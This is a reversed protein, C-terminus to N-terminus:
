HSLRRIRKSHESIGDDNNNNKHSSSSNSSEEKKKTKKTEGEQDRKLLEMLSQGFNLALLADSFAHQVQTIRFCNRGVNNGHFLPDEILLPDYHFPVRRSVFSMHHHHAHHRWTTATTNTTTRTTNHLRSKMHQHHHQQQQQKRHKQPQQQPKTWSQTRKLRITKKSKEASNSSSSSSGSLSLKSPKYKDKGGDKDGGGDDGDFSLCRTLPSMPVFANSRTTMMIYPQPLWQATHYGYPMMDPSTTATSTAVTQIGESNVSGSTFAHMKDLMSLRSFYCRRTVSIGTTRPDFDMGFFRLFRLLLDGLDEHGVTKWSAPEQEQLFRALMLVLGYSCLGGTHSTQLGRRLLLQKLVLLLPRLSRHESCLSLVMGSSAVGNHRDAQLSLDLKVCSNNALPKTVVRIIAVAQGMPKGYTEVKEVWKCQELRQALMQQWTARVANHEDLPGRQSDRPLNIVVDIDSSPLSLNSVYSGYLLVLARPWLMRVVTKVRHLAEAKANKRHLCKTDTTHQFAVIQQHLKSYKKKNNHNSTTITSINIRSESQLLELATRAKHNTKVSDEIIEKKKRRTVVTLKDRLDNTLDELEKIRNKLVSSEKHKIQDVNQLRKAVRDAITDLQVDSIKMIFPSSSSLTTTKTTPSSIIIEEEQEFKLAAARTVAVMADNALRLSDLSAQYSVYAADRSSVRQRERLRRKRRASRSEKKADTTEKKEEKEDEELLRKLMINELNEILNCRMKAMKMENGLPTFTDRDLRLGFIINNNNKKLMEEQDSQKLQSWCLELRGLPNVKVSSTASSCLLEFYHALFSGIQVYGSTVFWSTSLLFGGDSICKLVSEAIHNELSAELVISFKKYSEPFLRTRCTLYREARRRLEIKSLQVIMIYYTSKVQQNQQPKCTCRVHNLSQNDLFSFAISISALFRRRRKRESTTNGQKIILEIDREDRGVCAFVEPGNLSLKMIEVARLTLFEKPRDESVFFRREPEYIARRHMALILEIKESDEIRLNSYNIMKNKRNREHRIHHVRKSRSRGRQTKM